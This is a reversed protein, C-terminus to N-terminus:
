GQASVLQIGSSELKEVFKTFTGMDQARLLRDISSVMVIDFHGKKVDLYLKKLGPRESIQSIGSVGNDSYIGDLVVGHSKAFSRIRREQSAISNHGVANETATRVYGVALNGKRQLQKQKNTNSKIIKKM